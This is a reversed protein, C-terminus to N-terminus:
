RGCFAAVRIEIEEALLVVSWFCGAFFSTSGEGNM